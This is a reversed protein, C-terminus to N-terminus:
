EREGAARAKHDVAAPKPAEAPNEAAAPAAAPAPATGADAAEETTVVLALSRPGVVYKKGPGKGVRVERGCDVGGQQRQHKAENAQDAEAISRGYKELHNTQWEEPTVLLQLYWRRTAGQKISGIVYAEHEFLKVTAPLKQVKGPEILGVTAKTLQEATIAHRIATTEAKETRHHDLWGAFWDARKGPFLEKTYPNDTELKGAKAAATGQKHCVDRDGPDIVNPDKPKAPAAAAPPPSSPAPPKAPFDIKQQKSLADYLNFPTATLQLLEKVLEKTKETHDNLESRMSQEESRRRSIKQGLNHILEDRERRAVLEIAFREAETYSPKPSSPASTAAAPTPASAKPAAATTAPPVEPKLAPAAFTLQLEKQGHGDFTILLSRGGAVGSIAVVKGPGFTAHVLRDGVAWQRPVGPEEAGANVPAPPDNVAPAAANVAAAQDNVAAAPGAPKGDILELVEAPIEIAPLGAVARCTRQFLFDKARQELPLEDYAVMCPHTKAEPDKTAGHKWGEAVKQTYWSAHSDRPTTEPKDLILQVGKVASSRQWEPAEEWAAHSTDGLRACYARNAEHCAKAIDGVTLSPAAPAAAAGVLQVFIRDGVVELEFRDDEKLLRVMADIATQSAEGGSRIAVLEAIPARRHERLYTEAVDLLKDRKKSSKAKAPAPSAAPAPAPAPPTAPSTTAADVAKAEAVTIEEPEAAAPTAPPASEAPAELLADEGFIDEATDTAPTDTAHDM